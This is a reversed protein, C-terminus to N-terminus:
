PRYIRASGTMGDIQIAAGNSGTSVSTGNTQQLCIELYQVMTNVNTTSQFWAVGQPDFEIVHQFSYQGTGIAKGLPWDFPTSSIFSSNGVQLSSSVPPRAMNGTSGLATGSLHMNEFHQLPSIATLLTGNAYTSTWSTAVPITTYNSTGNRSAVVAVAVRGTGTVQPNVSSSNSVNTEEFGVFVHTNNAMAYARAQELMGAINYTTATIDQGSKIGKFAPVLLAMMLVMIGIVVILEVMTFALSSRFPMEMRKQFCGVTGPEDAMKEFICM